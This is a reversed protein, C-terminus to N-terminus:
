SCFALAPVANSDNVASAKSLAKTAKRAARLAPEASGASMAPSITATVV